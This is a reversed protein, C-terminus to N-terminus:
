AAYALRGRTRVEHQFSGAVSGWSEFRRADCSHLEIPLDVDHLANLGRQSLERLSPLDGDLVILLDVDSDPRPMGYVHSGFLYITRPDFENALKQVAEGIEVDSWRSRALGVATEALGSM